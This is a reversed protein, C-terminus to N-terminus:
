LLEILEEYTIVALGDINAYKRKRREDTVITYPGSIAIGAVTWEIADDYSGKVPFTANLKEAIAAAALRHEEGCRERKFEDKPLSKCEDPYADNASDWIRNYIAITGARIADLIAKFENGSADAWSKVAPIDMLYPPALDPM